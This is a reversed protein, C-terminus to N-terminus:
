ASARHASMAASEALEARRHAFAPMAYRALAAATFASLWVLTGVAQHLSRFVPPLHLEVLTAAVIIQLVVVGFTIRVARKVAVPEVRKRGAIVMGLLHFFLLFALIRHIVHIDLPLGHTLVARCWPFGQCSGNAGVVNATLAGFVITIFAMIAAVRAAGYTRREGPIAIGQMGFGGARIVTLSLVALLAMAISLHTVIIYPNLEMKVTIAGFVAATLVLGVALGIPRLVGGPGSVGTIRRRAIATGLLVLLVVTLGAAIYRHTIEIILDIRDAPPFWQGQCTPWHDGCGMGSGTIRVIAGFIIQAFALGLTAYSLRRLLTM